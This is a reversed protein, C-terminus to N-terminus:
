IYESKLGYYQNSFTKQYKENYLKRLMQKPYIHIGDDDIYKKRYDSTIYKEYFMRGHYVSLICSLRHFM